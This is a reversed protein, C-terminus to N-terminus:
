QEEYVLLPPNTVFLLHLYSTKGKVPCSTCTFILAALRHLGTRANRM